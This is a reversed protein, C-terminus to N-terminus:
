EPTSTENKKGGKIMQIEIVHRGRVVETDINTIWYGEDLLEPVRRFFCDPSDHNITEGEGEEMAAHWNLRTLTKM